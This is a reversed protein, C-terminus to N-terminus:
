DEGPTTMDLRRRRNVDWAFSEPVRDTDPPAAPPVDTASELAPNPPDAEIRSSLADRGAFPLLLDNDCVIENLSKLRCTISSSSCAPYAECAVCVDPPSGDGGLIAVLGTAIGPPFSCESCPPRRADNSSSNLLKLIWVLAAAPLPAGVEGTELLKPIGDTALMNPVGLTPKATAPSVGRELRSRYSVVMDLAGVGVLLDASPSSLTGTDGREGL